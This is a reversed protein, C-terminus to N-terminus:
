LQQGTMRLTLLSTMVKNYNEPLIDYDPPVPSMFKPCAFTFMDEFTKLDSVSLSPSM